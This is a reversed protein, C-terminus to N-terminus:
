WQLDGVLPLESDSLEAVRLLRDGPTIAATDISIQNSQLTAVSPLSVTLGYRLAANALAERMDPDFAGDSSLIGRNTRGHVVVLIVLRPRHGSWPKRGLTKLVSDIKQPDFQCTLFFPRDYTGQEDHVPKGELRDRYSFTSVYQGAGAAFTEFRGDNLVSADGSVKVLVDEFCLRLGLPRNREDKGTVVARTTYIDELSDPQAVSASTWLCISVCFGITLKVMDGPLRKM